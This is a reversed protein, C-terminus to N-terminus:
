KLSNIADIKENVDALQSQYNTEIEVKQRELQELNYSGITQLVEVEQGDVGIMTVPKYLEYYENSVVEQNTQKAIIM